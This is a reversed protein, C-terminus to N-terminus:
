KLVRDIYAVGNLGVMKVRTGVELKTNDWWIGLYRNHDDGKVEYVDKCFALQEVFKSITGNTLFGERYVMKGGAVKELEEENLAKYKENDSM